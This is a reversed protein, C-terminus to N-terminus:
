FNNRFQTKYNREQPVRGAISFILGGLTDIDENESTDLFQTNTVKQLEDIEVRASAEFVNASSKILM